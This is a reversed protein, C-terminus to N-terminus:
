GRPPPLPPPPPPLPPLLLPGLELSALKNASNNRHNVSETSGKGPITTLARSLRSIKGAIVAANCSRPPWAGVVRMAAILARRAKACARPPLRICSQSSASPCGCRGKRLLLAFFAREAASKSRSCCGCTAGGPETRRVVARVGEVGARRRVPPATAVPAALAGGVLLEALLELAPGRLAGAAASDTILRKGKEGSVSCSDGIAGFEPDEIM